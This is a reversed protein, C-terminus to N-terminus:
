STAERSPLNKHGRHFNWLVSMTIDYIATEDNIILSFFIIYLYSKM